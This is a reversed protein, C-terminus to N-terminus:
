FGTSIRDALQGIPGAAAAFRGIAERPDLGEGRVASLHIAVGRQPGGLLKAKLTEVKVEREDSTVIGRLAYWTAVQREVPGPAVIRIAAGDSIPAEDDVRVWRDNERLVGQGFSVLERGERQGSYVAVALDVAHGRRDAYRGLLMHDATPYHPAWADDESMAVRRWGPVEPLTLRPPLADARGAVLAAFAFALTAAGLIAGTATWTDARYGPPKQLDAPDFWPADPDRDFWRWGIALVAAMVLGFFVWGYIIHDAGTAAEVSTLHAAYITGFARVGNAIVPVMMAMAFFAARRSWSVFCVNAVLAGYAFMAIVFKAGSCAEAVEFYGGPITILVGDISAPVGAFHLGWMAMAATVDQLPRELSDGFPILFNMYAIPFTVGRAINPGLLTIVAGQLMAVLGVHRAFAVGAADGLFWGGAGVAVLAIGPWWAQPTLEALSARRQWVLWGIVPAIFLCHGFGTSNWYIHALGSVDRHFLLLLAAWCGALAILPMRWRGDARGGAFGAGPWAITM